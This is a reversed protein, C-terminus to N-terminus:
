PLRIWGLARAGELLTILFTLGGVVWGFGRAQSRLDELSRLRPEHDGFRQDMERTIARLLREYDEKRASTYADTLIKLESADM